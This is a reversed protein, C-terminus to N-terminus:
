AVQKSETAAEERGLDESTRMGVSESGRVRAREGFVDGSSPHATGPLPFPKPRWGDGRYFRAM